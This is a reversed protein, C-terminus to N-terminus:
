ESPAEHLLVKTNFCFAKVEIAAGNPVGRTKLKGLGLQCKSDNSSVDCFGTIVVKGTSGRRVDRARKPITGSQM